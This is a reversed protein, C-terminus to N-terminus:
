VHARGIEEILGICEDTEKRLYLRLDTAVQDNRSRATHMKGGLPGIRKIFEKEVAFHIDEQKPLKWGKKIDRLISELGAVIKGGEARKLIGSKVLMRVHARSGEIDAEALRGDFSFSGIFQEFDFNKM